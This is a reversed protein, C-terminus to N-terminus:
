GWSTGQLSAGSYLPFGVQGKYLPEMTCPFGLKDRTFLSWQVLSVWSTGQLSAGSYLPFPGTGLKDRTFLSWQRTFYVSVMHHSDLNDACLLPMRMTGSTMACLAGRAMSVSKLRALAPSMATPPWLVSVGQHVSPQLGLICSSPLLLAFYEGGGGGEVFHQHLM